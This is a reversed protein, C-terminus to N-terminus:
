DGATVTAHVWVRLTAVTQTVGEGKSELSAAVIEAYYLTSVAKRLFELMRLYTQDDQAEKTTLVVKIPLELMDDIRSSRGEGLSYSFRLGLQDAYQGKQRLWIALGQFDTFVRRKDANLVNDAISQMKEASWIERIKLLETEVQGLSTLDAYTDDIHQIRQTASFWILALSVISVLAFGVQWLRSAYIRYVIANLFRQIRIRFATKPSQYRRQKRREYDSQADAEPLDKWPLEDALQLEMLGDQVKFIGSSNVPVDLPDFNERLKTM